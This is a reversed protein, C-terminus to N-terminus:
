ARWRELIRDREHELNLLCYTRPCIDKEQASVCNFDILTDLGTEIMGAFVRVDFAARTGAHVRTWRDGWAHDAEYRSRVLRAVDAADWGRASLVRTLHQVFVPQLLLDNPEDLPRTACAPLGRPEDVDDTSDLRAFFKQHFRALSSTQYRALLRGVGAAVNPLTASTTQAAVAAAELSRGRAMLDVLGNGPRPVVALPAVARAVDEGFIDPRTRHWQYTSFGARV